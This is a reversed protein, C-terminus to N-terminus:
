KTLQRARARCDRVPSLANILLVTGARSGRLRAVRGQQGARRADTILQDLAAVTAVNRANQEECALVISEVRSRQIGHALDTNASTHSAILWGAVVFAAATVLGSLACVAILRWPRPQADTSRTRAKPPRGM